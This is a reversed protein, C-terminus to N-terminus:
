GAKESRGDERDKFCRSVGWGAADSLLRILRFGAILVAVSGLASTPALLAGAVVEFVGIGQPAFFALVGLGWSYLFAGGIELLSVDATIVRLSLLYLVFAAPGICSFVAYAGLAELYRPLSVKSRTQRTVLPILMPTLALGALSIWLLVAASLGLWGGTGRFAWICGGGLIFAMGLDFATELFIGVTVRSSDIGYRHYRIGRGVTHWIGGPLYRAPLLDLHTGLIFRYPVTRGLSRYIMSVGLPATLHSLSWVCVAALLYGPHANRLVSLILSRSQWAVYCFCAICVFVSVLKLKAVFRSFMAKADSARWPRLTTNLGDPAVRCRGARPHADMPPGRSM